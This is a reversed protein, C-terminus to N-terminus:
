ELANFKLEKYPELMEYSWYYDCNDIDLQYVWGDFLKITAIEGAYELMEECALTESNRDGENSYYEAELDRRIRVKDGIKYIM